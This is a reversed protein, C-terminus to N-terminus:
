CQDGDRRAEVRGKSLFAVRMVKEKRRKRSSRGPPRAILSKGKYVYQQSIKLIGLDSGKEFGGGGLGFTGM